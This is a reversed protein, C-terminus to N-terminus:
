ADKQPSCAAPRYNATARRSGLPFDGPARVLIRDARRGVAVPWRGTSGLFLIRERQSTFRTLQVPTHGFLIAGRDLLAIEQRQPRNRSASLVRSRFNLSIELDRHARM